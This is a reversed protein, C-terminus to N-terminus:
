LGNAKDLSLSAIARQLPDEDLSSLGPWTMDDLLQGVVLWADNKSVPSYCEVPTDFRAQIDRRVHVAFTPEDDKGFSYDHDRRCVTAPRISIEVVKGVPRM